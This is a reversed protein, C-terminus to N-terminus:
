GSRLHALLHLLEAYVATGQQRELEQLESILHELGLDDTYLLAYIAEILEPRWPAMGDQPPNGPEAPTVPDDTM